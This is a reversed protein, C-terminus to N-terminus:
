LADDLRKDGADALRTIFRGFTNGVVFTVVRVVLPQSEQHEAEFRKAEWYLDDALISYASGELAFHDAWERLSRQESM